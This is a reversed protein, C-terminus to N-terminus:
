RCYFYIKNQATTM